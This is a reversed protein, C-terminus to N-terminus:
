HAFECETAVYLAAIHIPAFLDSTAAQVWLL